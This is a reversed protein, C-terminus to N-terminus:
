VHSAAERERTALMAAHEAASVPGQFVWRQVCGKHVLVQVTTDQHPCHMVAEYSEIPRECLTLLQVLCKECLGPVKSHGQSELTVMRGITSQDMVHVGGETNALDRLSGLTVEWLVGDSVVNQGDSVTRDAHSHFVGASLGMPGAASLQALADPNSSTDVEATIDLGEPTVALDIVSGIAQAPDHDVLLPIALRGANFLRVSRDFAGPLYRTDNRDVKWTVAMGRIFVKSM